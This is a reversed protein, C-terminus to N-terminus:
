WFDVNCIDMGSKKLGIRFPHTKKKGNARDLDADVLDNLIYTGVTVLLTALPLPLTMRLISLLDPNPSSLAGFVGPLCFLGTVTALGYLFAFKKRSQFLVLQSKALSVPKRAENIQQDKEGPVAVLAM